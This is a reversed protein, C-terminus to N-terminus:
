ADRFVNHCKTCSGDLLKFSTRAKAAGAKGQKLAQIAEAAHQQTEATFKKWNEPTKQAGEAQEPAYDMTLESLQRIRLAIELAQKPDSVGKRAYDRLTKEIDRGNARELRYPSMLDYLEFGHAGKLPVPEPKAAPDAKMDASLTGALEEAKKMDKDILAKIVQLATDRLTALQQANAGPAKMQEQATHAIIMATSMLSSRAREPNPKKFREQLYKIDGALVMKFDEPAMPGTADKAGQSYSPSNLALLGLGLLLAAFGLMFWRRPMTM